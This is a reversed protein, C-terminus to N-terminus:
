APEAGRKSKFHVAVALVMAAALGLDEHIGLTFAASTGIVAWLVPIIWVFWPPRPTAWILFGFTAITTPCPLGFTPMHPYGHGLILNLLPYVLLAYMLLGAGIVFRPGDVPKFSLAPSRRAWIIWLVAQVLFLGGFVQAAPNIEAFFALHYAAGMWAWLVALGISVGWHHWRFGSVAIFVLIFALLYLAIQAPWVTLNYVRFVALFDETSFPLQM